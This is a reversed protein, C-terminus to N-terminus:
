RERFIYSQWGPIAYQYTICGPAKARSALGRALTWAPDWVSGMYRIRAHRYATGLGGADTVRLLLLGTPM